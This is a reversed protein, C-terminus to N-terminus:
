VPIRANKDGLMRGTKLVWVVNRKEWQNYCLFFLTTFFSFHNVRKDFLFDQM